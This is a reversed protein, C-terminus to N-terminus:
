ITLDMEEQKKIIELVAEEIESAGFIKCEKTLKPTFIEDVRTPSGALGIRETDANIDEPGWKQIEVKKARLKGKLTPLRPENIEKVVTMVLPLPSSILEYGGEVLREARIKTDKIEEIKRVFTIQPIGLQAAIGPGVQATDGDIAQKGCLILDFNGIKKCATALTYSTAWTDAGAFDLSTLLIGEDAGMAVVEKLAEEAQTPGMSIAIVDGGLEEKIKLAEEVAYLDFPNVMLEVGERVVTGTEKDMSAYEPDPVQKVCVIIRM